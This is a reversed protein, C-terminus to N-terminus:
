AHTHSYKIWLQKLDELTMIKNRDRHVMRHCNACLVTMDVAPDILSAEILLHLPRIHHVEIFDKGHEGYHKEFDFQCIKCITGHIKIAKARLNPNREYVNVLRNTKEGEVFKQNEEDLFDGIDNAVTDFLQQTYELNKDAYQSKPVYIGGTGSYTKKNITKNLSNAFESLKQYLEEFQSSDKPLKDFFKVLANQTEGGSGRGQYNFITTGKYGLFKSPAFSDDHPFYYWHFFSSFRDLTSTQEQRVIYTFQRLNDIIDQWDKITQM